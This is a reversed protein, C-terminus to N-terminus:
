IQIAKITELILPKIIQVIRPYKEPYLKAAHYGCIRDNKWHDSQAKKVHNPCAEIRCYM